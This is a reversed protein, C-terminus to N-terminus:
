PPEKDTSHYQYLMWSVPKRDVRVIMSNPPLAAITLLKTAYPDACDTAFHSSDIGWAKLYESLAEGAAWTNAIQEGISLDVWFGCRPASGGNPKWTWIVVGSIGMMWPTINEASSANILEPHKAVEPRAKCGELLFAIDNALDEAELDRVPEIAVYAGAAERIIEVLAMQEPWKEQPGPLSPAVHRPLLIKELALNDSKLKEQELRAAETEKGLFAIREQRYGDVHIAATHALFGFFLEGAVGGVVMPGGLKRKLRKTAKDISERVNGKSATRVRFSLEKEEFYLGVVVVLTAVLASMSSLSFLFEWSSVSM